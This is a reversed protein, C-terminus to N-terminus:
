LGHSIHLATHSVSLTNEAYLPQIYKSHLQSMQTQVQQPTGDGFLHTDHKM